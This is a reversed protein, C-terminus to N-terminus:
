TNTAQGSSLLKGLQNIATEAQTLMNTAFDPSRQATAGLFM